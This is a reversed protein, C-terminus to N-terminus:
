APRDPVHPCDTQPNYTHPLNPGLARIWGDECYLDVDRLVQDRDDCTVVTDLHRILLSSM